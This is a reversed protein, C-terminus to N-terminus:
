YGEGEINSRIERGGERNGVHCVQQKTDTTLVTQVTM